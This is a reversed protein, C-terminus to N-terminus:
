FVSDDGSFLPSALIALGLGVISLAAIAEGKKKPTDLKWFDKRAAVFREHDKEKYDELLRARQYLRVYHISSGSYHVTGKGKTDPLAKHISYENPDLGLEIYDEADDPDLRLDMLLKRWKEIDKTNSQKKPSGFTEGEVTVTTTNPVELQFPEPGEFLEGQVMEKDTSANM